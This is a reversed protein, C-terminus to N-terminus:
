MARNRGETKWEYYHGTPVVCRGATLLPAFMSKTALTEVRANIIPKGKGDWHKFGWRMDQFSVMGKGQSIIVTSHDTPRVEDVGKKGKIIVNKDNADPSFIDSFIERIEIIEEETLVSYRGCM